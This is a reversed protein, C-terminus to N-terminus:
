PFAVKVSSDPEDQVGVTATIPLIFNVVPIFDGADFALVQLQEDGDSNYQFRYQIDSTISIVGPNKYADITKFSGFGAGDVNQAIQVETGTDAFVTGDVGNIVRIEAGTPDLTGSGTTVTALTAVPSATDFKKVEFTIDDITGANQRGGGSGSPINAIFIRDLTISSVEIAFGAIVTTMAANTFVKGTAHGDKIKLNLWYDTATSILATHEHSDVAVGSDRSSLVLDGSSQFTWFVVTDVVIAESKDRFGLRTENALADFSSHNIKLTLEAEDTLPDFGVPLDVFFEQSGSNRETIFDLFNGTETDWKGGNGAPIVAGTNQLGTDSGPAVLHAFGVGTFAITDKDSALGLGHAVGSRAFIEEITAGFSAGDVPVHLPTTM